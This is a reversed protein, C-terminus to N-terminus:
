SVHITPPGEKPLLWIVPLVLIMGSAAFRYAVELGVWDGVVGIVIAAIPRLVFSMALFFGSAASRNDPLHDQVMALMVPQSALSVFGLAILLLILLYGSTEVLLLMLAGSALLAWFVIQKRGMHDSLTGAILAGGVGAFEYISLAWAGFWLDAGGKTLFTPLFVQIGVLLFSRAFIISSLPVFLQGAKGIVKRISTRKKSDHPVTRCNLYLILSAGWGAFALWYLQDLTVVSVTWVVLIPGVTRGLEGAAMLLSMGRGILNGSAQAVMAPAPAHFFAVSLGTAFLLSALSWYSNALGLCSMLTGTLGPAIFVLYRLNFRDDLYGIVPNLVSPIQLFITLSGAMTLSLNFREILLPLLPALFATYTDHVFHALSISLVKDKQFRIRLPIPQQSM